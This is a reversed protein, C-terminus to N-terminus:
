AAGGAASRGGSLLEIYREEDVNGGSAVVVVQGAPLKNRHAFLAALATAGSPELVLRLASAALRVAAAIEAEEVTLVGDLYHMQHAFPIPAPAEARLGDAMTRATDASSWAVPRGAALSDRTDAALAPEVGMVTATPLLQKVATAIGASLGGMGVPVLVSVPAGVSLEALQEVIELGCTAQGTVVRRDDASSVLVSGDRHAIEHARAVREVNDPGVFVIEAGDRTVGAVKVAPANEPMVVVARIGLMRAARAVAQAHNGSSHAVVGRQREEPTLQALTNYAGRIKFSGTPQLSEPKVLTQEDLRLLPTRLVVGRIRQAADRIEDLSVLAGPDPDGDPRTVDSYQGGSSIRAADSSRM